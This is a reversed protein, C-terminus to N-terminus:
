FGGGANKRRQGQHKRSTLNRNKLERKVEEGGRECKTGAIGKNKRSSSNRDDFLNM